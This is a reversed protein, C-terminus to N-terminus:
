AQSISIAATLLGGLEDHLLRALQSKEQESFTQLHASFASLERTHAQLREIETNDSEGRDLVTEAQTAYTM